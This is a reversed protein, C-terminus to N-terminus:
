KTDNYLMYMNYKANNKLYFTSYIKCYKPCAEFASMNLAYTYTVIKTSTPLFQITKKVNEFM